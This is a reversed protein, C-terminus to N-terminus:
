RAPRAGGTARGGNQALVDVDMPGDGNDTTVRAGRKAATKTINPMTEDVGMKNSGRPANKLIISRVANNEVERKKSGAKAERLWQEPTGCYADLRWIYVGNGTEFDSAEGGPSIM